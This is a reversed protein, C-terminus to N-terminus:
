LRFAEIHRVPHEVIASVMSTLHGMFLLPTIMFLGAAEPKGYCMGEKFAVGATAPALRFLIKAM